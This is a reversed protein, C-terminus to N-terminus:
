WGDLGSGLTRPGQPGHRPDQDGGTARPQARREDHTQQPSCPLLLGVLLRHLRLGDLQLIRRLALHQGGIKQRAGAACQGDGAARQEQEGPLALTGALTASIPGGAAPSHAEPRVADVVGQPELGPGTQGPSSGRGALDTPQGPTEPLPDDSGRLGTDSLNSRLMRLLELDLDIDRDQVEDNYDEVAAILNDLEDMTRSDAREQHFATVAMEMGVFVNLAVFSKQAAALNDGAFFGERPTEGVGLPYHVQVSDHQVEAKGPERFSVDITAIPLDRQEEMRPLPMLEVLLTSGGGRRGDEDTVDDASERHAVFVSPVHLQGGNVTDEWLPSGLARGFEYAEGARLSLELDFAVPVVFFSLEEEFVEDVAGTDELFYFNGDAQQALGRMLELNFDTGLGVTTLGIGDSNYTRSMELITTTATNGATPNGDSLLIVRNQRASDYGDVVERYGRELGAALNTGGDAVLAEVARRLAVRQEGVPAMPAIVSAGDSYTVLSLEDDDRMGDILLNLGRRVFELKNGRMSGSVDIVVALALPPRAGPDAAIPSNLGLQLMTCNNGNMLNGMVATMPQLCIRKGCSPPPLETHHEAFFGAADLSDPTPVQGAELQGRFFGIDQAGGFSVNSGSPSSVGQDFSRDSGLTASDAACGLVQMAMGAGLALMAFVPLRRPPRADGDPPDSIPKLM